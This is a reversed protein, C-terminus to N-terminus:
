SRVEANWDGRSFFFVDKQHKISNMTPAPYHGSGQTGLTTPCSAIFPKEGGQLLHAQWVQVIVRLFWLLPFIIPWHHSMHTASLEWPMWSYCHPWPARLEHDDELRLELRGWVGKGSFGIPGKALGWM